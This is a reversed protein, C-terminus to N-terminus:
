RCWSPSFYTVSTGQQKQSARDQIFGRFPAFGTGPGIMIVATTPRHPLRLTSKRIFIPVVPRNNNDEVLKAALYNTAVGKILRDQISYQLVVATVSVREPDAKRRRRSRTIGHRCACDMRGDDRCPGAIGASVQLRPLLELVYDIPPKCTPFDTLIDVISRRERQIFRSYEAQFSHFSCAVM